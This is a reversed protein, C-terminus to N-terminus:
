WRGAAVLAPAVTERFLSHCGGSGSVGSQGVCIPVCVVAGPDGRGRPHRTARLGPKSRSPVSAFRFRCDSASASDRASASDSDSASASGSGSDFRFAFRNNRIAVPPGTKFRGRLRFRVRLRFRFRICVRLRLRGGLRFGFRLPRNLGGKFALRPQPPLANRSHSGLLLLHTAPPAQLM